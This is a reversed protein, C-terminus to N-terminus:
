HLERLLKLDKSGIYLITATTTTTSNTYFNLIFGNCVCSLLTFGQAMSTFIFNFLRNVLGYGCGYKFFNNLIQPNFGVDEVNFGSTKCLSDMYEIRLRKFM